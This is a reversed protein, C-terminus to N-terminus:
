WWKKTEYSPQQWPHNPEFTQWLLRSVKRILEYGQNEYEWSTDQQRKTVVCFAYDGSPANVLVVESRSQNVAGQKSAAQVWPPIFALAEGDYYIRTLIRYIEESVERSIVKGQYVDILLQTIERPTLQGWGYRERIAERGPTRSNVRVQQYGHEEMLRNIRQGTVIDQLWISATNDSTTIMLMMLKNLAIQASDKLSAVIGDDEYPYKVSTPDYTMVSDYALEGRVIKDFVGILIPVKVISASPFLTDAQIAWEQGTKLHKVYIGVDGNVTRALNELTNQLTQQPYAGQARVPNYTVTLMTLVVFGHLLQYFYPQSSQM